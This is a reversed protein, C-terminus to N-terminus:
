KETLVLFLHKKKKPEWLSGDKGCVGSRLRASACTEYHRKVKETGTIPNYEDEDSKYAKKCKYSFKHLKGFAFMSMFRYDLPVFSHKCDKCLLKSNEESM